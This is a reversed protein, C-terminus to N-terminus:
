KLTPFYKKFYSLFIHFMIFLIIYKIIYNKLIDTKLFMKHLAFLLSYCFPYINAVDLALLASTDLIDLFFGCFIKKLPILFYNEGSFFSCFM